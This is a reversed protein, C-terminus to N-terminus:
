PLEHNDGKLDPELLTRLAQRARHLRTKIVLTSTGLMKATEETDLGEIDRLLIVTRYSEPLEGIRRHVIAKLEKRTAIEEVSSQWAVPETGHHEGECFHPLLPEISQEGSRQVSRLKKLAANIVIRHLWTSLQSRGEFKEMGRFAQLFAEQIADRTDEDNRLIRKAVYYMPDCFRRVFAEFAAEEGAQLGPLLEGETPQPQNTPPTMNM